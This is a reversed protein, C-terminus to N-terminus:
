PRVQGNGYIVYKFSTLHESGVPGRVHLKDTSIGIEAGFGFEGGDAFQTSANQLIIASNIKDSFVKFTNPNNTIISETHGSSFDNIHKIAEDVGNVMKVSIIKDLYETKWDEETAKIFNNNLAQVYSDGRVECELDILGQLLEATKESISIDILLTEAAGCIGPRRMKSNLLVKKAIDIDADKDVYVHCIGDLHKIVPISSKEKINKILGKGGRPIIIDIYTDLNLMCDVAARDTVPIMQVTNEPLGCSSFALKILEYLKSSSHFSDKGGRLIVANGAKVAITSADVTVNPRSEYIM